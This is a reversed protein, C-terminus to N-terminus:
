RGPKRMAVRLINMLCPPLSILDLKFDCLQRKGPREEALVM